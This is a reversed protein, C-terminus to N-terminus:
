VRQLDIQLPQIVGDERVIIMAQGANSTAKFKKSFNNRGCLSGVQVVLRGDNEEFIKFRHLHGKVICHYITNDMSMHAKIINDDKTEEDGHILKIKKGNLEKIIENMYVSNNIYKLTKSKTLKILKKISENVVVIFNDGDINAKKDGNSRDHNGAIGEFEVEVYKSLYTLLWYILETAKVIQHALKFEVDYAQNSNRMYAHEIMDGLSCVNLKKINYLKCYYLAEKALAAVRRKAISYNFKNGKVNDIKSGIHWDTIVLIAENKNKIEEKKNENIKNYSFKTLDINKFENVIENIVIKNMAFDRKLKNLERLIKQNEIKECYIEGLLKNITGLENNQVLNKYEDNFNVASSEKQYRKVLCRYNENTDSNDFGEENMLKKHKKWDCRLSPSIKQLEMKLKLATDLHKKCVYVVESKSNTYSYNSM